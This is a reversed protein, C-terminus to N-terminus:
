ADSRGQIAAQCHGLLEGLDETVDAVPAGSRLSDEVQGALDTLEPFGYGGASGRVKHALERIADADNNDFAERLQQARTELEDIFMPILEALDEDQEFQSAIPPKIPVILPQPM